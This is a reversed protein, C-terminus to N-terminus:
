CDNRAGTSCSRITPTSAQPSRPADYKPGPCRPRRLLVGRAWMAVFKVMFYCVAGIAIGYALFWCTGVVTSLVDLLRERAAERM